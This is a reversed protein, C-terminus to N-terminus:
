VIRGVVMVVAVVASIVTAIKYKLLMVDNEVAAEAKATVIYRNERELAKKDRKLRIIESDKQLVEEELSVAQDVVNDMNKKRAM